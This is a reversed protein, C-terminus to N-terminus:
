AKAQRGRKRGMKLVEKVLRRAQLASKRDLTGLDIKSEKETGPELILDNHLAGFRITMLGSVTRSM